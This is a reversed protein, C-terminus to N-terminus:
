ERTNIQLLKHTHTYIYINPAHNNNKKKLFCFLIKNQPDLSGKFLMKKNNDLTTFKFSKFRPLLNNLTEQGEFYSLASTKLAM